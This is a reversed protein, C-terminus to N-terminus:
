LQKHSMSSCVQDEAVRGIVNCNGPVGASVALNPMLVEEHRRSFHGLCLECVKQGIHESENGAVAHLWAQMKDAHIPPVHAFKERSAINSIGLELIYAHPYFVVGPHSREVATLMLEDKNEFATGPRVSVIHLQPAEATRSRVNPMIGSDVRKRPRGFLSIQDLQM